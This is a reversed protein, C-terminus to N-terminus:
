VEDLTVIQRLYISGNIGMETELKVDSHIKSNSHQCKDYLLTILEKKTILYLHAYFFSAANSFDNKLLKLKSTNPSDIKYQKVFPLDTLAQDFCLQYGNIM